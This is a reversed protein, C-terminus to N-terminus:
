LIQCGPGCASMLAAVPDQEGGAANSAQVHTMYSQFLGALVSFDFDPAAAMQEHEGDAVFVYPLDLVTGSHCCDMICTLIVGAPMPAILASFLDDDRIQGASEYDVPV